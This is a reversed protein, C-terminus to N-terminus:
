ERFVGRIDGNGRSGRRAGKARVVGNPRSIRRLTWLVRRTRWLDSSVVDFRVIEEFVYGAARDFRFLAIRRLTESHKLHLPALPQSPTADSASFLECSELTTFARQYLGSWLITRWVIFQQSRPEPCPLLTERADFDSCGQGLLFFVVVRDYPITVAAFLNSCSRSYSFRAAKWHNRAEIFAFLFFSRM